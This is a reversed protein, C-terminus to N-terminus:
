CSHRNGEAWAFQRAEIAEGRGLAFLWGGCFDEANGGIGSM